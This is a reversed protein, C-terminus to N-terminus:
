QESHDASRVSRMKRRIRQMANDVAKVTLGLQKAAEAYTSGSLMCQLIEWERDSLMAMVQMRTHEFSEKELLISEPTDPDVFEGQAELDELYEEAPAPVRLERRVFSRMRNCICVQAFASFKNGQSPDYQPIAALLAILGEQVLDDVDGNLAYRGAHFRILRLYRSLLVGEAEVDSAALAALEEDTRSELGAESV